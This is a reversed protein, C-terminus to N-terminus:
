VMFVCYSTEIKSVFFWWFSVCIIFSRDVKVLNRWKPRFQSHACKRWGEALEPHCFEKLKVFM